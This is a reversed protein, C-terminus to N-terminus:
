INIFYPKRGKFYAIREFGAQRAIEIGEATGMGLDANTHCDSGITIIEGGMDHYLKIYEPPPFTGGYKQRLGSTNIEIGKGAEIVKKFIEAIIDDYPKLDVPIGQEGQIYRLAYTIHGLVDYKGWAAIKLIERFNKEMLEPVNDESYELFAFDDYGPMEHMSAIVFDLRRDNLIKETTEIDSLPQGMEIGCILNLKDGYQEKALTVESMSNEFANKFGYDTYKPEHDFNYHEKEYYRNVECHDTIAMADLGLRIARECRGAVTDNDADFSNHTHTHCDIIM